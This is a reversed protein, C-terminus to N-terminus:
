AAGGVMGLVEDADLEYGKRSAREAVAWVAAITSEATEVRDLLALVTPPDFAAVYEANARDTEWKEYGFKAVRIRRIPNGSPDPNARVDYGESGLVNETWPGPTATEALARLRAMDITPGTSM